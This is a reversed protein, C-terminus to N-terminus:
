KQSGVNETYCSRRHQVGTIKENFLVSQENNLYLLYCQGRFWDAVIIDQLLPHYRSVHIYVIFIWLFRKALLVYFYVHSNRM